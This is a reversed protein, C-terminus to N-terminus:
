NKESNMEGGPITPLALGAADPSPKPVEREREREREPEPIVLHSSRQVGSLFFSQEPREHIQQQPPEDLAFPDLQQHAGGFSPADHPPQHGVQARGSSQQLQQEQEQERGFSQQQPMHLAHPSAQRRKQDQAGRLRQLQLQQQPRRCHRQRQRRHHRQPDKGVQRGQGSYEQPQSHDQGLQLPIRRQALNELGQQM